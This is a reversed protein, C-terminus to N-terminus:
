CLPCLTGFSRSGYKDSVFGSRPGFLVFGISFPILYLGATLADLGLAGEFYFVRVLSVAGRSVSALLNSFIGSSFARIRFLTLDMIPYKVKRELYVFLFLSLLGAVM